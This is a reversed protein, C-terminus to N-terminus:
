KRQFGAKLAKELQDAPISGTRGDPHVVQVKGTATKPKEGGGANLVDELSGGPKGRKIVDDYIQQEGETLEEGAAMKNLIRAKVRDYTEDKLLEDLDSGSKKIVEDYVKQEGPTLATGDAIKTMIRAQLQAKTPGLSADAKAKETDAQVKGVEAETKALNAEEQKQKLGESGPESPFELKLVAEHARKPEYGADRLTNYMETQKKAKEAAREDRARAEQSQQLVGQVFRSISDNGVGTMPTAGPETITKPAVGPPVYGQDLLGDYWAM